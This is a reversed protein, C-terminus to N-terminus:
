TDQQKQRIELKNLHFVNLTWNIHHATIADDHNITARDHKNAVLVQVRILLYKVVVSALVVVGTRWM